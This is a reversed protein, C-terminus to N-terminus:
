AIKASLGVNEGKLEFNKMEMNKMGIYDRVEKFRVRGLAKTLVDAKQKDGQVYEVEM